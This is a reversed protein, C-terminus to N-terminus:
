KGKEDLQEDPDSVPGCKFTGGVVWASVKLWCHAPFALFEYIRLIMDPPM